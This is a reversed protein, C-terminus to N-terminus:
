PKATGEGSLAARAEAYYGDYKPNSTDKRGLELLGQLATKLSDRESRLDANEEECRSAYERNIRLLNAYSEPEARMESKLQDREARLAEIEANTLRINEDIAKDREAEVAALRASRENAATEWAVLVKRLADSEITHRQHQDKLTDAWRRRDQRHQAAEAELRRSLVGITELHTAATQQWTRKNEIARRLLKRNHTAEATRAADVEDVWAYEGRQHNQESTIEGYYDREMRCDGYTSVDFTRVRAWPDTESEPKPTM